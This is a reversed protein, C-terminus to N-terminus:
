NVQLVHYIYFFLKEKVKTIYYKNRKATQDILFNALQLSIVFHSGRCIIKSCRCYAVPLNRFFFIACELLRNIVKLWAVFMLGKLATTARESGLRFVDPEFGVTPLFKENQLEREVWSGWLELLGNCHFWGHCVGLLYGTESFPESSFFIAITKYLKYRKM